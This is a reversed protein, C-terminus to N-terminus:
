LRDIIDAIKSVKANAALYDAYEQQAQSILVDYKLIRASMTRLMQTLETSPISGSPEQGIIAIVEIEPHAIQFKERLCTELANKYKSLQEILATDKVVVDYKKLEIIVHKGAVTQYRIDIRGAKEEDSLKSTIEDFEAKVSEEMRPDTAPNAWSSNLLWLHDFIYQQIVKEKETEVIGVFAEIVDLRGRTIEHYNAAEIDDISQFAKSFVTATANEDIDEIEGLMGKFRLREFAIVTHKYIEGKVEPNDKVATGIKGFLKEAFQKEDPSLLDYWDKIAPNELADGTADQNRWNRWNNGVENLVKEKFWLLLAAYRPDDEKLRQRDSTAIDQKDDLDVFDAQIEGILYKTYVGGAKVDKLIDEQVVKGWALVTVSNNGEDISKQEDFTGIWGKVKYANQEDVVGDITAHNKKNTAQDSYEDGVDGISWLYEIKQFFDRDQIGIPEGNIKVEFENAAGIVSFRRALRKRLSDITLGNSINTSLKTLKIQTGETIDIDEQTLSPPYYLEEAAARAKIADTELRLGSKQGDKVSKVEIEEAIAFLSLKGIGKRGMVHRGGPTTGGSADRRKYGVFLYKDNLDAQSMGIGNDQIVIEKTELNIDINVNKADADWANAVIESLVAPVSSYLNLGLHDLVSLSISLKYPNEENM